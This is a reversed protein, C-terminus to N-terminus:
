PGDATFAAQRLGRHGPIVGVLRDSSSVRGRRARGAGPTPSRPTFRGRGEALGSTFSVNLAESEMRHSLLNSGSVRSMHQRTISPATPPIRVAEVDKHREGPLHGAHRINIQTYTDAKTTTSTIVSRLKPNPPRTSREPRQM